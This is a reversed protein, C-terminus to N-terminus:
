QDFIGGGVPQIRRLGLLTGALTANRNRAALKEAARRRDVAHDEHPALRLVVVGPRLEPIAAPAVPLDQRNEAVHFAVLAVGVALVAAPAPRQLDAFAVL